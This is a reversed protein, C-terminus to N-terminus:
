PQAKCPLELPEPETRNDTPQRDLFASRNVRYERGNASLKPGDSPVMASESTISGECATTSVVVTGEGIECLGDLSRESGGKSPARGFFREFEVWVRVAMWALARGEALLAMHAPSGAGRM